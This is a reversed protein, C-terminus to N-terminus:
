GRTESSEEWGKLGPRPASVASGVRRAAACAADPVKAATQHFISSNV